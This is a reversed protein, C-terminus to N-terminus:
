KEKLIQIVKIEKMFLYIKQNKMMIIKKIHIHKITQIMEKINFINGGDNNNNNGNNFNDDEFVDGMNNIIMRNMNVTKNDLVFKKKSDNSKENSYFDNDDNQRQKNKKREFEELRKRQEEINYMDEEGEFYNEGNYKMARKYYDDDPKNKRKEKEKKKLFDEKEKQLKGSREDKLLEMYNKNNIKLEFKDETKQTINFNYGSLKFIYCYHDNDKTMSLIKGDVALKKKGSLKSDWFEIKHEVGELRFSWFHM